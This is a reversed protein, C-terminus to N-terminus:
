IERKRKMTRHVDHFRFPPPPPSSSTHTVRFADYKRPNDVLPHETEFAVLRRNKTRVMASFVSECSVSEGRTM